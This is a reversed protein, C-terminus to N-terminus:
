FGQLIAIAVAIGSAKCVRYRLVLGRAPAAPSCSARCTQYVVPSTSLIDLETKAVHM